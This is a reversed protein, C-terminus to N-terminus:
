FSASRSSTINRRFAPTELRLTTRMPTFRFDYQMGSDSVTVVLFDPGFIPGVGGIFNSM